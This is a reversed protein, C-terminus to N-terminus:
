EGRPLKFKCGFPVVDGVGNTVFAKCHAPVGRVIADCNLGATHRRNFHRCEISSPLPPTPAPAELTPCRPVPTPAPCVVPHSSLDALAAECTQLAQGCGGLNGAEVPRVIIGGCVLLALGVIAFKGM